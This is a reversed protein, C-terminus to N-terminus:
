EYQIQISTVFKFNSTSVSNLIFRLTQFQLGGSLIGDPFEINNKKTSLVCDHITDKQLSGDFPGSIPNIINGALNTQISIDRNIIRLRIFAFKIVENFNTSNFIVSIKKIKRNEIEPIRMSYGNVPVNINPSTDLVGVGVDYAFFINSLM